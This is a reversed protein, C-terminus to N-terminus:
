NFEHPKIWLKLNNTTRVEVFKGRKKPNKIIPEVLFKPLVKSKAKDEPLVVLYM